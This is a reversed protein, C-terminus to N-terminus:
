VSTLARHLLQYFRAGEVAYRAPGLAAGSTSHAFLRTLTLSRRAGPGLAAHLRLSETYPITRDDYGHALVVPGTVRHLIPQPDLGPQTRIAESALRDVFERAEPWDLPLPGSPPAIVDWVAREEDNLSERVRAKMPDYVADAAFAGRRGAELALELAADAVRHMDGMGEVMHLFNGVVIWRGYPDPEFRHVVGNWEHEGLVLGRAMRALDCYGGFAVVSRLDDALGPDARAIVAQTAGFSFGVAGVGGPVAEPRGALHHVAARITAGAAAVDLRLARWAPVDPVFVVAGSAAMARVFRVMAAHKRGPVTLGHLAVWGPFPGKGRPLYLTAEREEGDVRFVVEEERVDASAPRLYARLFRAARTM